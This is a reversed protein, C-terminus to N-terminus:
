FDLQSHTTFWERQVRLSYDLTEDIEMTEAQDKLIFGGVHIQDSVVVKTQKNVLETFLSEDNAKVLVLSGERDIENLVKDLAAKVFIRYESSQTFDILEQKIKLFLGDVLEARRIFLDKKVKWKSQSENQILSNRLEALAMESYVNTEESAEQRFRDIMEQRQNEYDAQLNNLREQSQNVIAKVLNEALKEQEM